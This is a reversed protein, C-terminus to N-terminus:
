DNTGTGRAFQLLREVREVPVEWLHTASPKDGWHMGIYMTASNEVSTLHLRWGCEEPPDFEATLHFSM